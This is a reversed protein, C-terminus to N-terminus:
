GLQHPARDGRVSEGWTKAVTAGIVAGAIGGIVAGVVAGIVGVIFVGALATVAAGVVAGVLGGSFTTGRANPSPMPPHLSFLPGDLPMLVDGSLKQLEKSQALVLVNGEASLKLKKDRIVSEWDKSGNGFLYKGNSYNGEIGTLAEMSSTAAASVGDDSVRSNGKLFDNGPRSFHDWAVVKYLACSSFDDGTKKWEKPAKLLGSKGKCRRYSIGNVVGYDEDAPADQRQVLAIGDLDTGYKRLLNQIAAHFNDKIGKDKFEGGFFYCGMDPLTVIAKQGKAKAHDSAQKLVPLLRREYFANYADQNIKEKSSFDTRVVEQYDPFVRGLEMTNKALMAGPTFLLYGDLPTSHRTPKKWEGNDFIKVPMTMSIDGLISREEDNWGSIDESEAFIKPKKTNLLAGLFEETTMASPAKGIKTLQEQLRGGANTLSTKVKAHHKKIKDLTLYSMVIKYRGPM